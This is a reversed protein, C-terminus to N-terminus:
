KEDGLSILAKMVIMILGSYFCANASFSNVEYFLFLCSAM